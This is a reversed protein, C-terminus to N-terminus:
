PGKVGFSIQASVGVVGSQWNFVNTVSGAQGPQSTIGLDYYWAAAHKYGIQTQAANNTLSSPGTGGTMEGAGCALNLETATSATVNTTAYTLTHNLTASDLPSFQNANTLSVAFATLYDSGALNSVTITSSGTAPAIDSFAALNKVGGDTTSAAVSMVTSGDWVQYSNTGQSNKESFVFVIRLRNAGLGADSSFSLHDSSANNTAISYVAPPSSPTSSGGRSAALILGDIAWPPMQGFAPALMM